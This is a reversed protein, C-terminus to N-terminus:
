SCEKPFIAEGTFAPRGTGVNASKLGRHVAGMEDGGIKERIEYRTLTTGTL